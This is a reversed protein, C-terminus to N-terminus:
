YCSDSNEEQILLTYKAYMFQTIMFLEKTYYNRLRLPGYSLLCLINVVKIICFSFTPHVFSKSQSTEKSAKTSKYSNHTSFETESLSQSTDLIKENSQQLLLFIDM